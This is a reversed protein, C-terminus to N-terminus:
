TINQKKDKRHKNFGVTRGIIFGIILLGIVLISRSMSVDWWLLKVQVVEINQLTFIVVLTIFTIAVTLRLNHKM